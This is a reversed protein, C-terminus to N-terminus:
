IIILLIAFLVIMGSSIRHGMVLSKMETNHHNLIGGTALSILISLGLAAILLVQIILFGHDLYFQYFLLTTMVIFGLSLFKHLGGIMLHYPTGKMKLWIGSIVIFLFLVGGTTAMLEVGSM